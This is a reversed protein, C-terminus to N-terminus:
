GDSFNKVHSKKSKVSRNKKDVEEHMLITKRRFDECLLHLFGKALDEDGPLSKM